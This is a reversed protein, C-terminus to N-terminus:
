TKKKEMKTSLPFVHLKTIALTAFLFPSFSCVVVIPVHDGEKAVGKSKRKSYKQTEAAISTRCSTDEDLRLDTTTAHYRGLRAHIMHWGQLAPRTAYALLSLNEISCNSVFTRILVHLSAFTTATEITATRAPTCTTMRWSCFGGFGVEPTGVADCGSLPPRLKSIDSQTGRCAYRPKTIRSVRTCYAVHAIM